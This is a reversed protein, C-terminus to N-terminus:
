EDEQTIEQLGLEFLSLLKENSYMIKENSHIINKMKKILVHQYQITRQLSEVKDELSQITKEQERRIDLEDMKYYVIKKFRQSKKNKTLVRIWISSDAM